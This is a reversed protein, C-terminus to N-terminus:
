GRTDTGKPGQDAQDGKATTATEGKPKSTEAPRDPAPKVGGGAEPHSGNTM